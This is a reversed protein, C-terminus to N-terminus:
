ASKESTLRRAAPLVERAPHQKDGLPAIGGRDLREDLIQFGVAAVHRRGEDLADGGIQGVGRHGEVLEVDDGVGTSGDVLHTAALLAGVGRELPQAPLQELIAIRKGRGRAGLEVHEDRLHGGLTSRPGPEVFLLQALDEAALLDIDHAGHEPLPGDIDHAGLDLRHLRDGLHDALVKFADDGPGTGALGVTEQFGDVPEELGGFALGAAVSIEGGDAGGHEQERALQIEFFEILM